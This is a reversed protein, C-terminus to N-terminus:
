NLNSLVSCRLTSMILSDSRVINYKYEGEEEEEEQAEEGIARGDDGVAGEKSAKSTISSRRAAM